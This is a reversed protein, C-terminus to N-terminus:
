VYGDKKDVNFVGDKIKGSHLEINNCNHGDYITETHNDCYNKITYYIKIIERLSIEYTIYKGHTTIHNLFKGIHKKDKLWLDQIQDEPKKHAKSVIKRRNQYWIQISRPTLGLLCALVERTAASPYMTIKSVAELMMYQKKTKCAYRARKYLNKSTNNHLLLIGFVAEAEKETLMSFNSYM